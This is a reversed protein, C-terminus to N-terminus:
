NSIFPFDLYFVKINLRDWVLQCRQCLYQMPAPAPLPPSSSCYNQLATLWPLLMVSPHSIVGFSTLHAEAEKSGLSGGLILIRSGCLCSAPLQGAVEFIVVEEEDPLFLNYRINYTCQKRARERQLYSNGLVYAEFVCVRIYKEKREKGGPTWIQHM